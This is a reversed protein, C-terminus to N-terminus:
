FGWNLAFRMGVGDMSIIEKFTGAPDDVDRDVDANNLFVEANIRNTSSLPFGIGAWAQWGWGGYTADFEEGTTFDEASVFLVEYGGGVGFYPIVPLRGGPSVELSAMIPFLDSSSRSLELRREATGGGPIPVEQVVSTQRDSRHNWDMGVGLHLREDFSSGIRFGFLVGNSLDGDPDFFGGHIQGFGRSGGGDTDGWSRGRHRRPRYRIAELTTGNWAAFQAPAETGPPTSLLDSATTTAAVPPLTFGSAGIAGVSVGDAVASVATLPVFAAAAVFLVWQRNMSHRRTHVRPPSSESEPGDQALRIRVGDWPDSVPMGPITPAERATRAGPDLVIDGSGRM